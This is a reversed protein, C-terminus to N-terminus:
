LTNATAKIVQGIAEAGLLILGGIITWLLAKRAASIETPNGRAKIFLFGVWILMLTLIITGIRVIASLVLALLEELSDVKLPNMLTVGGSTGPPNTSPTVVTGTSTAPSVVGQAQALPISAVYLTLVVIALTVITLPIRLM